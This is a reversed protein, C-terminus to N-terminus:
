SDVMGLKGSIGHSGLVNKPQTAVEMFLDTHGVPQSATRKVLSFDASQNALVGTEPLPEPM